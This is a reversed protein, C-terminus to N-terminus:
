EGSGRRAKEEHGSVGLRRELEELVQRPHLDCAALMVLCHFWLDAMLLKRPATLSPSLSDVVSSDALSSCLEDSLAISPSTVLLSRSLAYALATIPRHSESRPAGGM